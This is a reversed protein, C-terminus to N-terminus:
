ATRDSKANGSEVAECGLVCNPNQEPQLRSNEPGPAPDPIELEFSTEESRSSDDISVESLGRRRRQLMLGENIAIRTLWTSFSSKGKFKRLHVFAKHFSQQVIDEADQRLHTFRLAVVLIERQYRRVLTEFAQAHGKKAAAVLAADETESDIDVDVPARSLM